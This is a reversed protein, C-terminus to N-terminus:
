LRSCHKLASRHRVHLPKPWTAAAQGEGRVVDPGALGLALEPAGGKEGCRGSGAAARGVLPLFGTERGRGSVGFYKNGEGDGSVRALCQQNHAMRELVQFCKMNKANLILDCVGEVHETVFKAKDYRAFSILRFTTNGDQQPQPPPFLETIDKYELRSQINRKLELICYPLGKSLRILFVTYLKSIQGWNMFPVMPSFPCGFAVSHDHSHVIKM